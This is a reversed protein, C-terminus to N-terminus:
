WSSLQPGTPLPWQAAQSWVRQCFWMEESLQVGKFRRTKSKRRRVVKTLKWCASYRCIALITSPNEQAWSLESLRANRFPFRCISKWKKSANSLMQPQGHVKIFLEGSTVARLLKRAGYVGLPNDKLILEAPRRNVKLMEALVMCTGTSVNNGSVDLTQITNNVELASAIFSTGRDGLGSWPLLLCTM